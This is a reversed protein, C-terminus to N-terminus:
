ARVRRSRRGDWSLDSLIYHHGIPDLLAAVDRRGQFVDRARVVYAVFILLVSGLFSAMPRGNLAALSFQVVTAVFANPLAFFGYATLYAAPRFPGLVEADVSGLLRRAPHGGAHGAPDVNLVFAALFRGGLHEIKSVPSTYTLICGRRWTARLLM